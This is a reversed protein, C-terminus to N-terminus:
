LEKATSGAKELKELASKTFKNAHVTIKATIEGNGLIKLQHKLTSILGIEFLTKSTVDSGDPFMNLDCVNVISYQTKFINNFGRKM